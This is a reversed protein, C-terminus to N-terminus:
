FETVRYPKKVKPILAINTANIKEDLFGTNLFSLVVHCMETGVTAWNQQYFCDVFGDPGSAKLTQMQGLAQSVEELTFENLLLINIESSFNIDIAHICDGINGWKSTTFLNKHYENFANAIDENSYSM